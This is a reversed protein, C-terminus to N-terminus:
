FNNTNEFSVFREAPSFAEKFEDLTYANNVDANILFETLLDLIEHNNEKTSGHEDDAM